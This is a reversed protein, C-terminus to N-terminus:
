LFSRYNGGRVRNQILWVDTDVNEGGYHHLHYNVDGRYIEAGLVAADTNFNVTKVPTLLKTSASLGRLYLSQLDRLDIHIEFLHSSKRYMGAMQTEPYKPADWHNLGCLVEKDSLDYVSISNDMRGIYMLNEHYLLFMVVDSVFFNCQEPIDVTLATKYYIYKGSPLKQFVYGDKVGCPQIMGYGFYNFGM